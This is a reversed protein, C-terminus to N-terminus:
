LANALRRVAESSRDHDGGHKFPNIFNSLRFLYDLQSSRWLDLLSNGCLFLILTACRICGNDVPMESRGLGVGGM